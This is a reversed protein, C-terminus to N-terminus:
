RVELHTAAAWSQALARAAPESLSHSCRTMVYEDDRKRYVMISVIFKHPHATPLVTVYDRDTEDM